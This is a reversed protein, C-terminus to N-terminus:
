PMCPGATLIEAGNKSVLVTDEIRVGGLGPVYIGPEDTVVNGAVLIDKSDPSLIPAEHVELGVGHGLNHVFFKGYGSEEIVQRAEKDVEKAAVKPKITELAKQHALKVADYIRAQKTTAKSAIFTRTIDSRYSKYTAGIDVIVFDRDQIIRELNSGHPFASTPGSAVITEFAVGDSGAKRMAYEIEAAADREKTGLWMIEKATQMGVAAIRCAERILKIEKQEKVSRLERILNNIPQLNEEGVTKSLACWNEVPMIDFSFKKASVHKVIKEMINEGRKLLQVTLGRTEAKAQEYNVSSVYLSNEGQEPILLATAGTFGTFYTINTQNLIIFNKPKGQKAAVQKLVDTRKM